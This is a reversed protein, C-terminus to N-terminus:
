LRTSMGTFLTMNPASSTVDYNVGADWLLAKELTYQIGFDCTATWSKHNEGTIDSWLEAYADLRDPILDHHVTGSNVWEAHHGTGTENRDDDLETMAGFDFGEPLNVDIPLIVGGEMSSNGIHGTNTPFKVFPMIGLAVHGGDDGFFNQKVRVYMDGFGERRQTSSMEGSHTKQYQYPEVIWQIDTLNTLGLKLNVPLVSYDDMAPTTRTHTWTVLDFEIQVHGADVTYPCETQDPRDTSFERMLASPTPHFCTYDSKDPHVEALASGIGALLLFISWHIM